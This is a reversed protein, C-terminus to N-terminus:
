CQVIIELQLAENQERFYVDLLKLRSCCNYLLIGVDVDCWWLM